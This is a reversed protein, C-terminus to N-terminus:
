FANCQLARTQSPDCANQGVNVRSGNGGYAQSQSAQSKLSNYLPILLSLPSSSVLPPGQEVEHQM